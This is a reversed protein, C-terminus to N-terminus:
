SSAAVAADRAKKKATADAVADAEFKAKFAEYDGPSGAEEYAKKAPADYPISIDVVEAAPAPEPEAAAVVPAPAPEPAVVAAPAPAPAESEETEAVKGKLVVVGIGGVLALGAAALVAADVETGLIDLQLATTTAKSNKYHVPPRPPSFANTIGTSALVALTALASIKM